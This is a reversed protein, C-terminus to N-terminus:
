LQGSFHLSPNSGVVGMMTQRRQRRRRHHRWGGGEEEIKQKKQQCLIIILFVGGKTDKRLFTNAVKQDEKLLAHIGVLIYM